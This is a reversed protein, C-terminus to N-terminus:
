TAGCNPTALCKAVWRFPKPVDADINWFKALEPWLNAWRFLDGNTVNSVENRATDTRMAWLVSRGLLKADTLQHLGGSWTDPNGAFRLPLGLEASVAGYAAMGHLLNM